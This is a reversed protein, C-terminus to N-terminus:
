STFNKPSFKFGLVLMKKFLQAFILVFFFTLSYLYVSLIVTSLSASILTDRPGRPWGASGIQNTELWHSFSGLFFSLSSPEQTIVDYILRQGECLNM